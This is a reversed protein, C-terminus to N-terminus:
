HLVLECRSALSFGYWITTAIAVLNLHISMAHARSFAKNRAKMEESQITDNFKRGDKTEAM